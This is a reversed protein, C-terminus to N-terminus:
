TKVHEQNELKAQSEHALPLRITFCAGGTENNAASITGNHEEVINRCIYLGLGTGKGVEKTTYFPTWLRTMAKEPIGKGNDTVSLELVDNNSTARIAIVPKKQEELAHSANVIINVLVQELKQFNGPPSPLDEDVELLITTDKRMSNKTLELSEQILRDIDCPKQAAGKVHSYSKLNKVINVIRAVGNQVGAIAKPAEELIFELQEANEMQDLELKHLAPELVKWYEALNQINGSIFATPNNIEHAIGASMTGLTVMRDADVLQKAQEQVLCEMQTAHMELYNREVQLELERIVVRDASRMRCKLLDPVIPKELFDDAGANFAEVTHSLDTNATVMVMYSYLHQSRQKVLKTLQIGDIVPMSWDVFIVCPKTHKELYRWAEVPDSFPIVCFQESCLLKELMKLAIPDDDILIIDYSSNKCKQNM